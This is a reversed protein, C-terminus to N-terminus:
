LFITYNFVNYVKPLNTILSTNSTIEITDVQNKNDIFRQKVQNALYRTNYTGTYYVLLVRM